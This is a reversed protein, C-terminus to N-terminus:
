GAVARAGSRAVSASDVPCDGRCRDSGIGGADRQSRSNGRRRGRRGTGASGQRDACELSRGELRQWAQGGSESRTEGGPITEGLVFPSAAQSQALEIGAAEARKLEEAFADVPKENSSRLGIFAALGLGVVSVPIGVLLLAKRM